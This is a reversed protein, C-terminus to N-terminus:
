VFVVFFFCVYIYFYMFLCFIFDKYMVGLAWWDVNKDHGIGLIVEPALYDPTGVVSYRKHRSCTSGNNFVVSNTNSADTGMLKLPTKLTSEPTTPIIEDDPGADPLGKSLAPNLTERFESDNILGYSSLGFDTLKIHGTASILLNDPKLDRHIINMKHLYGLALVIQAVYTRAMDEDLCGLNKLLSYVDGGPAYEMVLYLNDKTQFSFYSRILFPSNTSALINREAKIHTLQNKLVAQQKNLRKIAYVDGTTKKRSLYVNGFAGKGISKIFEFDHITVASLKSRGSKTIGQVNGCLKIFKSLSELIATADEAESASLKERDSGERSKDVVDVVASYTGKASAVFAPDITDLDCKDVFGRLIDHIRRVGPGHSARRSSSLGCFKAIKMKIDNMQAYVSNNKSCEKTHKDIDEFPIYQECIRCCVKRSTARGMSPSRRKEDSKIPTIKVQPSDITVFSSSIMSISVERDDADIDNEDRKPTLFPIVTTGSAESQLVQTSQEQLQPLPPPPSIIISGKASPKASEQAKHIKQDDKTMLPTTRLPSSSTIPTHYRMQSDRVNQPPTSLIAQTEEKEIVSTTTKLPSSAVVTPHGKKPEVEKQNTNHSSRGAQVFEVLRNVRAISLLLKSFVAINLTGKNSEDLYFQTIKRSVDRFKGSTIDGLSCELLEDVIKVAEPDHLKDRITRLEEDCREKTDWIEKDPNDIRKLYRSSFELAGFSRAHHSYMVDYDECQTVPVDIPASNENGDNDGSERTCSVESLLSSTGQQQQQQLRQSSKVPTTYMAVFRSQVVNEHRGKRTPGLPAQFLIKDHRPPTLSPSAKELEPRTGGQPHSPSVPESDRGCEDNLDLIPAQM